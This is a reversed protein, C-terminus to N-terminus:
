FILLSINSMLLKKVGKTNRFADDSVNVLNSANIHLNSINLGQFVDDPISSINDFHVTSIRDYTMNGKPPFVGNSQTCNVSCIGDKQYTFCSRFPCWLIALTLNLLCATMLHSGIFM